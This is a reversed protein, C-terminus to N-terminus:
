KLIEDIFSKAEDLRDIRVAMNLCDEGANKAEMNSYISYAIGRCEEDRLQAINFSKIIYGRYERLVHKMGSSSTITQPKM